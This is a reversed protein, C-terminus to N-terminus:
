MENNPRLISCVTCIEVERDPFDFRTYRSFYWRDCIKCFLWDEIAKAYDMDAKCNRCLDKKPIFPESTSFAQSCEQIHDGLSDERVKKEKQM